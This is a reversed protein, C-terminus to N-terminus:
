AAEVSGFVNDDANLGTDFVLDSGDLSFDGKLKNQATGNIFVVIFASNGRPAVPLTFTTQGETATFNFPVMRTEIPAVARVIVRNINKRVIVPPTGKKVYTTM